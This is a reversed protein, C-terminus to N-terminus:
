NCYLLKHTFESNLSFHHSKSFSKVLYWFLNLPTKKEIQMSPHITSPNIHISPLHHISPHHITSPHPHITSPHISPHISPIHFLYCLWLFVFVLVIPIWKFRSVTGQFIRYITVLAWHLLVHSYILEPSFLTGLVSHLALCTRWMYGMNDNLTLETMFVLVTLKSTFICLLYYCLLYLSSM